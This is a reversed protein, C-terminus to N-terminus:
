AGSHAGQPLRTSDSQSAAAPVETEWTDAAFHLTMGLGVYLRLAGTANGTDVGLGVTDRGRRAFEAFATRLLFTAIGRGRAARLVGLDRIWGMTERNNRGLLAGVPTPPGGAPNALSAVWILSWDFEDANLRGRWHEYSEPQHDFHEAFADELLAHVLRQDAEAEATRLLVGPPPSPPRDTATSVARKLVNHRRIDRWGRERLPGEALVADPPLHLHIVARDAGNGGALEAARATMLDIVHLGAPVSERRVYHDADIRSNGHENWLAGFAVLRGGSFALWSDRAPDIGPVTLDERVEEVSYEAAGIDVLDVDNILDCILQADELTAPRVTVGHRIYTV